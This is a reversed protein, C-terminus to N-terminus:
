GAGVEALRRELFARERENRALSAARAYAAAAERPRGARRLLEARAAHLLHYGDLGDLVDILALGHQPGDAMAVAVARNLAAVPTPAVRLLEGYLAAIQTWDTDEPREAEVHLAAIAAQLQYPGPRGHRLAGELVRVGEAIAARDWLSRDQEEMLVLEGGASTRARRRSDHLLLLAVLGAAEPEDPMLAAVLKAIRIADACLPPRTLADGASAAYGERFILYVVALVGGLREPLQHDPPVRFAIGADRVKQKARVLRKAMADESVLFARAIEAATLGAVAQLTLAVRAEEALAPHACTFILSLREDGLAELSDTSLDMVAGESAIRAYSAEAARERRLRDVARNRAVTLLWPGPADPVGAAPWRALAAAFADQLADEALEFDGFRRV